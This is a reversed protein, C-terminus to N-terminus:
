RTGDEDPVLAKRFRPYLVELAHHAEVRARGAAGLRAAQKPDSLLAGLADRWGATDRPLRGDVGDEILEANIGVPSAAVAMGAAQYLLIKFGCKGRNFPTDHLPMIGVAAATLLEREAGPSWPSFTVGSPMNNPPRDCMIVLEAEPLRARVGSWAEWVLELNALNTRTGVWAALRLNRAGSPPPVIAHVDVPTPLVVTRAPVAAAAALAPNGALVRDAAGTIAAFRDRNRTSEGADLHVADDVDYVLRSARSRLRRVLRPPFLKKQVLLCDGRRLSQVLLERPLFGNPIRRVVPTFGDAQLLPLYQHVRLRSSATREDGITWLQLRVSM